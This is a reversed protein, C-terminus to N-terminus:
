NDILTKLLKKLEKGAVSLNSSEREILCIQREPINNELSLQFVNDTQSNLFEIPVFCVGLCRNHFDKLVPLLACHLAIESAAVTVTGSQLSNIESIENKAAVIHEVPVKIAKRRRPNLCCREKSSYYTFLVIHSM